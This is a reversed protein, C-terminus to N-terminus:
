AAKIGYLTFTSGAYFTYGSGNYGPWITITSIAATNRWTGVNMYSEAPIGGRNLVTKYINSNSYNFIHSISVPYYNNDGYTSATVQHVGIQRYNTERGSYITSNAGYAFTSSYNTSGTSTDTNFSFGYGDNAESRSDRGTVVLILDTYTQPISSFVVSTATSGLTNTSIAEYTAAM